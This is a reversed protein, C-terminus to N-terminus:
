TSVSVSKVRGCETCDVEDVEDDSKEAIMPASTSSSIVCVGGSTYRVSERVDAIDLAHEGGEVERGVRLGVDDVECRTVERDREREDLEEDSWLGCLM